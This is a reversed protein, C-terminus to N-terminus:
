REVLGMWADRAFLRIGAVGDAGAAVCAQANGPSVGGLAFVPVPRAAECASALTALGSGDLRANVELLKEFVPAFLIVTAGAERALRAEEVTHCAVSIVPTRAGWNARIEEILDALQASGPLHVGDVGAQRGIEVAGSDPRGANILVLSRAFPERGAQRVVEVFQGALDALERPSLDKERLQIYQVGAAAWRAAQRLLLQAREREDAAFLCRNTIAYLRM